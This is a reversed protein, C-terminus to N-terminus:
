SGQLVSLDDTLTHMFDILAQKEQDTLKLSDPPLTQLPVELGMGEGGGADYFDVVEELTQYVGNHMYPATLEINRVTPTKFYHKREETKYVNFRGPDDDLSANDPEAPVGLNELETKTYRPPITGNFFPPFHCTACAAKGMFLNAGLKESESLKVTHDVLSRDFKSNFLNLSRVFTALSKHINEENIGDAFVVNFEEQYDKHDGLYQIIQDLDSHFEDKELVVSTIQGDLNGARKDYFFGRQFAAYTLTPSNRELLHGDRGSSVKKGDTFAKEPQHCTACSMSKGSSLNADYFLKKGLSVMKPDITSAYRDAFYHINYADLSFLNAADNKFALEFPFEVQWDLTTENWLELQHNLRVKIFEYRDFSDFDGHLAVLTKKFEKDWEKKLEENHFQNSFAMLYQHLSKYVIRAEEISHLLAPSDFGTIGTFAVRVLENRFLWLFHYPKYKSLDTNSLILGLRDAVFQAKQRVVDQDYEESFITEELVQFGEPDFIKINTQDEEEVQLLNPQNLTEYNEVDVFSLIPEIKKFYARSKAFYKKARDHETHDALKKSFHICSDLYNLYVEEIESFGTLETTEEAKKQCATLVLFLGALFCAKKVCRLFLDTM